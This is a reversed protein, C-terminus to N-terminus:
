RSNTTTAGATASTASIAPSSRRHEGARRRYTVPIRAEGSRSSHTSAPRGRSRHHRSRQHREACLCSVSARRAGARPRGDVAAPQPDGAGPERQPHVDPDGDVRDGARRRPHKGGAPERGRGPRPLLAHDFIRHHCELIRGGVLAPHRHLARSLRHRRRQVAAGGRARAVADAAM